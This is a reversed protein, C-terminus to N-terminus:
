PFLLRAAAHSLWVRADRFGPRRDAPPQGPHSSSAERGSVTSSTTPAATAHVPTLRAVPNGARHSVTKWVTTAGTVREITEHDLVRLGPVLPRGLALEVLDEDGHRAGVVGQEGQLVSSVCFHVSGPVLM